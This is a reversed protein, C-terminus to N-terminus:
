SGAQGALTPPAAVALLVIGAWIISKRMQRMM